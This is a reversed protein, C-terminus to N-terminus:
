IGLSYGGIKMCSKYSYLMIDVWVVINQFRSINHGHVFSTKDSNVLNYISLLMRWWLSFFEFKTMLTCVNYNMTFKNNNSILSSDRVCSATQKQNLSFTRLINVSLIKQKALDKEVTTLHLSNLLFFKWPPKNFLTCRFCLNCFVNLGNRTEWLRMVPNVALDSYHHYLTNTHFHWWSFISLFILEGTFRATFVTENFWRQYKLQNCVFM